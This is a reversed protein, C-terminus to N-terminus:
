GTGNKRRRLAGFGALGTAMLLLGAPLPVPQVTLASLYVETNPSSNQDMFFGFINIGELGNSGVGINTIKGDVITLHGVPEGGITSDSDSAYFLSGSFLGHSANRWLSDIIDVLTNFELVLFESGAMNDDSPTSGPGANSSCKSVGDKSSGDGFTDSAGFFGSSCVGLGAHDLGNTAQSASGSGDFFAHASGTDNGGTINTITVGGSSFVGAGLTTKVQEFSGETKKPNTAVGYKYDNAIQAFDFTAAEATLPAALVAATAIAKFLKM